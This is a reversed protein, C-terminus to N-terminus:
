SASIHSHFFDVLDLFSRKYHRPLLGDTRNVTQLGYQNEYTGFENNDAFSWALAGILSVGDEHISKMAEALYDQYYLSRELDQRQDELLRAYEDYVPYGFETIMLTSTRFTNWVYGLQAVAFM